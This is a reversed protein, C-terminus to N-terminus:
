SKALRNRPRWRIASGLAGFGVLMMAWTSPEPVAPLPTECTTCTLSVNAINLFTGAPNVSHEIGAVPADYSNSFTLENAVFPLTAIHFDLVVPLFDSSPSLDLVGGMGYSFVTLPWTGGAQQIAFVLEASWPAQNQVLFSLEYDGTGLAGFRQFLDAGVPLHAYNGPIGTPAAIRTVGANTWDSWPTLTSGTGIPNLFTGDLIISTTADAPAAVALSLAMAAAFAVIRFKM